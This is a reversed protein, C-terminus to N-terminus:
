RYVGRRIAVSSDESDDVRSACGHLADCVYNRRGITAANSAADLVSQASSLVSVEDAYQEFRERMTAWAMQRLRREVENVADRTKTSQLRRKSEATRLPEGLEADVDVGDIYVDSSLAESRARHHLSLSSAKASAPRGGAALDRITDDRRMEARSLTGAPTSEGATVTRISSQSDQKVVGRHPHRSAPSPSAVFSAVTSSRSRTRSRASSRRSLRLMSPRRPRAADDDSERARRDLDRDEDSTSAPSPSSADDHEEDTWTPTSMALRSLPSPHAISARHAHGYPSRASPGPTHPAEPSAIAEGNDERAADSGSEDSDSDDLAGEGYQKHNLSLHSRTGDSPTESQGSHTSHTFSPRRFSSPLRPRLPPPLGAGSERRAFIAAPVSPLGTSSKRPSSANSSTPTVGHPSRHGSTSRSPKGDSNKSMSGPSSGKRSSVLTTADSTAPRHPHSPTPSLTGLTPIAAPATAAHTLPPSTLPVPSPAPTPLAVLNMLLSELIFWTQAADLADADAAVQANHACIAQKDEGVYIYGRALKEIVEMDEDAGDHTFAGVTQTTPRYSQDGLSKAAKKEKRSDPDSSGSILRIYCHAYFSKCTMM